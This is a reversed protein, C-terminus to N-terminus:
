FLNSAVSSSSRFERAQVWTTYSSCRSKYTTRQGGCMHQPVYVHEWRCLFPVQTQIKSEPQLSCELCGTFFFISHIWLNESLFWFLQGRGRKFNIWVTRDIVQVPFCEGHSATGLTKSIAYFGAEQAPRHPPRKTWQGENARSVM